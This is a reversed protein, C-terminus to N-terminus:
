RFLSKTFEVSRLTSMSILLVSINTLELLDFIWPCIRPTLAYDMPTALYPEVAVNTSLQRETVNIRIPTRRCL